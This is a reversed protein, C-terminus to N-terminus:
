KPEKELAIRKRREELWWGRITDCKREAQRRLGIERELRYTIGAESLAVEISDIAQTCSRLAAGIPNRKEYEHKPHSM